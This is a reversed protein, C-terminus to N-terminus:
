VLPVTPSRIVASPLVRVEQEGFAIGAPGFNDHRHLFLDIEDPGPQRLGEAGQDFAVKLDAAQREGFLSRRRAGLAARPRDFACLGRKAGPLVQAIKVVRHNRTPVDREVPQAAFDISIDDGGLSLNLKAAL